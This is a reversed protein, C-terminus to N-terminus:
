SQIDHLEITFEQGSYIKSNAKFDACNQQCNWFTHCVTNSLVYAVWISRCHFSDAHKSPEFVFSLSHKSFDAWPDLNMSCLKRLSWSNSSLEGVATQKCEENWTPCFLHLEAFEKTKLALTKSFCNHRMQKTTYVISKTNNMTWLTHIVRNM